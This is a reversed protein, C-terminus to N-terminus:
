KEVEEPEAITFFCLEKGTSKHQYYPIKEGKFNKLKMDIIIQHCNKCIM